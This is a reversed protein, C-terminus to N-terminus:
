NLARDGDQFRDCVIGVSDGENLDTRQEPKVVARNKM